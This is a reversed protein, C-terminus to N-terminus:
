LKFESKLTQLDVTFQDKMLRTYIRAIEGNNQREVLKKLDSQRQKWALGDTFLLLVTDPRKTRIIADIDGIVDSMKSGTVGFGKAEILINPQKRSPVVFDCKATKARSGLFQCRKDYRDGFVTTVIGEVFDELDRGRRQGSIASGRGSRLREVLVSNWKLPRNVEMAMAELLGLEIMGDVLTDPAEAYRRLSQDAGIEERLAACFADKSLGLFLRCILKGDDFNQDLLARIDSRDYQPKIPLRELERIVRIATEDEWSVTLPGLKELISDLTQTLLEM